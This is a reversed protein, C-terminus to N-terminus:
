QDLSLWPRTIGLAAAVGAAGAQAQAEDTYGGISVRWGSRPDTAASALEGGYGALSLREFLSQALAQTPALPLMLRYRGLVNRQGSAAQPETEQAWRGLDAPDVPAVPLSPHGSPAMFLSQAQDLTLSQGDREISIQGELLVVFDRTDEHKGWVDTGRIGITATGIRTRIERQRGVVTTTFRFAGRVVDFFGKFLGSEQAPALLETLALEANEGLKVTSGEALEIVLRAGPGTVVSDGALLEDGPRLPTRAGEHLRWVPAQLLRAMAPAALVNVTVLLCLLALLARLM